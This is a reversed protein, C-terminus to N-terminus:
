CVSKGTRRGRLVGVIEGNERATCIMNSGALIRRIREVNGLPRKDKMYTMALVAIYDEAPLLHERAYVISM